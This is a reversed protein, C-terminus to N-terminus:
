DDFAHQDEFIQINERYYFDTALGEMSIGLLRPNRIFEAELSDKYYLTHVNIEDKQGIRNCRGIAQIKDRQSPPFNYFIIVSAFQVNLGEAAHHYTTLLTNHIDQFQKLAKIRERSVGTFCCHGLENDDLYSKIYDPVSGRFFVICKKDMNEYKKLLTLLATMRNDPYGTRMAVFQGQQNRAYYTNYTWKIQMIYEFVNYAHGFGRLYLSRKFDNYQKIYQDYVDIEIPHSHENIKNNACDTEERRIIKFGNEDAATANLQCLISFSLNTEKRTYATATLGFKHCDIKKLSDFYTTGTNVKHIEDIIVREPKMLRLELDNRAMITKATIVIDYRTLDSGRYKKNRNPHYIYYKIPNKEGFFKEIEEAWQDLLSIPAVVLTRKPNEAIFYLTSLTKGLGVPIVLIGGKNESEREKFWEVAVEQHPYLSHRHNLPSIEKDAVLNFLYKCTHGFNRKSAVNLKIGINLLIEDPFDALGYGLAEINDTM